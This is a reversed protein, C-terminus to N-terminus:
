IGLDGSEAMRKFDPNNVCLEDFTGSDVVSGNQMFYICDSNRITSFRHAIIILTKDGSLGELARGLEKETENDLASTAEDLMLIKPRHYLARAIGLRQREGGSIRVGNEGIVTNLARPLGNVFEELQAKRLAEWVRADDVEEDELGFAVNNRISADLLYISQPVYGINRQWARLHEFIDQDDAFVGGVSPELLGLMINALTTKGAGTSGVFAVSQGIQITLSVNRLAEKDSGPYRYGLNQVRLAKKFLLPGGTFPGAEPKAIYNSNFRSFDEYIIDVAPSYFRFQQLASVIRSVAPALRISAMAFLTLLPMLTEAERGVLHVLIIIFVVSGVAAIELVMAPMTNLTSFMWHARANEMCNLYYGRVFVDERGSVKVEKVAGLSELIAQAVKKQSSQLTEGWGRSYKHVIMYFVGAIIGLVTISFVFVIPDVMILLVVIGVLVFLETFMRLLGQVFAFIDGAALGINRYLEATNHELHFAYPSHLYHSLLRKGLLSRKSYVFRLQLYNMLCIFMNKVVYFILLSVSMWTLFYYSDKAGILDNARSLWRNSEIIDPDAIISVFPVILGIGGTELISGIVMLGFLLLMQKRTGQDLILYLKKFTSLM